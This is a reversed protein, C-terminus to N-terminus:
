YTEFTTDLWSHSIGHENFDKPCHYRDTIHKGYTYGCNVCVTDDPFRKKDLEALIGNAIRRLAEEAEKKCEETRSPDYLYKGEWRDEPLSLLLGDMEVVMKIQGKDREYSSPVVYARVHEIETYFGGQPYHDWKLPM